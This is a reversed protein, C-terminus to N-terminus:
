EFGNKFILYFHDIALQKIRQRIIGGEDAEGLLDHPAKEYTSILYQSNEEDIANISEYSLAQVERIGGNYCADPVDDATGIELYLQTTNSPYYLDFVHEIPDFDNDDVTITPVIKRLSCGPSIASVFLPKIASNLQLNIDIPLAPFHTFAEIRDNFDGLSEHERQQNIDTYEKLHDGIGNSIYSMISTGGNSTGVMCTKACDIQDLSCLYNYTALIDLTRVVVRRMKYFADRVPVGDGPNHLPPAVFQFFNDDNDECFRADRSVFSAPAITAVGIDNFLDMLQSYNQTMNNASTDCDDGVNGESFLGGSGHVLLCAPVPSSASAETPINIVSILEQNLPHLEAPIVMTQAESIAQKPIILAM